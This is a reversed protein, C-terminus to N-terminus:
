WSQANRRRERSHLCRGTQLGQLSCRRQRSFGKKADAVIEVMGNDVVSIIENPKCHINPKKKLRKGASNIINAIKDIDADEKLLMTRKKRKPEKIKHAFNKCAEKVEATAADDNELDDTALAHYKNHLRTKKVANCIQM